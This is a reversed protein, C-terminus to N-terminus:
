SNLIKKIKMLTLYSETRYQPFVGFTGSFIIFYVCSYISNGIGNNPLIDRAYKSALQIYRTKRVYDAYASVIDIFETYYPIMLNNIFDIHSEHTASQYYSVMLTRGSPVKPIVIEIDEYKNSESEGEALIEEGYTLKSNFKIDPFYPLILRTFFSNYLPAALGIEVDEIAGFEFNDPYSTNKNFSDFLENYRENVIRQIDGWNIGTLYNRIPRVVYIALKEGLNYKNFLNQVKTDVWTYLATFAIGKNFFSGIGGLILAPSAILGSIFSLATESIARDVDLGQEMMKNVDYILMGALAPWFLKGIGTGIKSFIGKMAGLKGKAIGFKSAASSAYKGILHKTVKGLTGRSIMSAINKGMMTMSTVAHEGILSKLITLLVSSGAKLLTVFANFIGTILKMTIKGTTTSIFQNKVVHIGYSLTKVQFIFSNKLNALWMGSFIKSSISKMISVSLKAIGSIGRYISRFKSTVFDTIRWLLSGKKAPAFITAPKGVVWLKKTWLRKLPGFINKNVFIKVPKIFKNSFVKFKSKINKLLRKGFAKTKNWLKKLFKLAKSKLMGLLSKIKSWLLKFPKLLNSWLSRMFKFTGLKNHIFKYHLIYKINSPLILASAFLLLGMGVTKTIFLSFTTIKTMLFSGISSLKGILSKTFTKKTKMLSKTFTKKTKLVDKVLKSEDKSFLGKAFNSPSKLFVKIKKNM